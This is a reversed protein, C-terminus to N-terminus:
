YGKRHKFKSIPSYEDHSSRMDEVDMQIYRRMTRMDSWGGIKQLTFPDCGNRIMNVAWTHRYVHATVKKDIVGALEAYYKLRKNFHNAKIPEGYSSLFLRDTKFETKNETILQLVWKSVHSSFPVLRNVRSKNQEGALEIFRTTFDFDGARLSLLENVRLGCDLLVNMAVFDRFGVYDRLNPQKLIEKAEDDTLAGRLDNEDQKILKVRDMPNVELLEERELYNFVARLCRLNINITTVSLGIGQDNTIYKHGGYKQKDYRMWHIYNRIMDTTIESVHEIKYNEQLWNQFYGWMKIYDLLTRERLGETRKGSVVMDVAQELTLEPVNSVAM